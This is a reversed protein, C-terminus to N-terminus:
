ASLLQHFTARSGVYGGSKITTATAQAHFAGTISTTLSLTIELALLVNIKRLM